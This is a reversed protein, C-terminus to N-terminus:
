AYLMGGKRSVASHDLLRHCLPNLSKVIIHNGCVVSLCNEIPQIRMLSYIAVNRANM